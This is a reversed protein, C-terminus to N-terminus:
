GLKEYIRLLKENVTEKSFRRIEEYDTPILGDKKAVVDLIADAMNQPESKSCVFVGDFDTYERTGRNDLCIVPLGSALGEIAAMGLGERLSPFVDADAMKYIESIDNRYGLLHVCNDVGLKQALNRLYHNLPGMGAIAYHINQDAIYALGKIVLEHNKNENLEGVSLLLFADEPIGLEKRKAQKDVDTNRFKEADIGVGPVYEVQRAKMKKKALEYDEHNITILTDTFHACFKEVPYYILWNLLPAGKYFHFGHATYIVRTGRKRLSRCALRTCAGAIPTHCHVIDYHNDEALKKIEKIARLNGANVPTRSCSLPYVNCGWERYCEPVKADTDNCAIDVVHGEQILDNIFSKFFGMTLGITTVYLIRM